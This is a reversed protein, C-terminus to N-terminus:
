GCWQRGITCLLRVCLAVVFIVVGLAMWVMRRMVTIVGRVSLLVLMRQTGRFSVAVMGVTAM